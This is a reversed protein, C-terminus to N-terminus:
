FKDYLRLYDTDTSNELARLAMRIIASKSKSRKELNTARDIQKELIEIDLNNLTFTVPQARGKDTSSIPKSQEEPGNVFQEKTIQLPLELKNSNKINM